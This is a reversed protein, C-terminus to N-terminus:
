RLSVDDRFLCNSFKELCKSQLLKYKENNLILSLTHFHADETAYRTKCRLGDLFRSFKRFDSRISIRSQLLGAFSDHPTKRKVCIKTTNKKAPPLLLADVSKWAHLSVFKFCFRNWSEEVCHATITCSLLNPRHQYYFHHNCKSAKFLVMLTIFVEATLAREIPIKHITKPKQQPQTKTGM